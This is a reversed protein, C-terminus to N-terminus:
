GVNYGVCLKYVPVRKPHGSIDLGARFGVFVYHGPRILNLSVWQSSRHAAACLEQMSMGEASPTSEALDKLIQALTPAQQRAAARSPVTENKGRM